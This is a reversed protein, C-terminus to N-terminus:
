GPTPKLRQWDAGADPSKWLGDGGLALYRTKGDISLVSFGGDLPRPLHRLKRWHRGADDSVTLGYGFRMFARRNTIANFGQYHGPAVLRGVPPAGVVPLPARSQLIFTRASNVSTHV